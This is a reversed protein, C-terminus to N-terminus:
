LDEFERTERSLAREPGVDKERHHSLESTNVACGHRPSLGEVEQNDAPVGGRHNTNSAGGVLSALRTVLSRMQEAHVNMEESLGANEESSAANQQVVRDMDSVAKNVQEIGAAQQGSADAIEAVLVGVSAISEAVTSFEDNTTSVLRSGDNVKKATDEILAATSRAADAARLALNRVEDAVVAFGAGVEGARAAEVAANLALLNTQFAIEDITKVIKSTDESAGSIEEMSTTLGAMAVNANAIIRNADKMLGDAKVVNATNLKTMSDMEELSASTEEIASAQSSSGEAFQRSSSSLRGSASAIHDASETLESAAKRVSTVISRGTFLALLIATLIAALFLIIALITESNATNLLEATRKDIYSLEMAVAKGMDAMVKTITSLIDQGNVGFEGRNSLALIRAYAENLKKWPETNKLDNLFLRTSHSLTIVPSEINSEINSKIGALEIMQEASIPKDRSIISFMIPQLLGTNEKAYELIILSLFQKGIGKTTKSKSAEAQLSICTRIINTYSSRIEAIRGGHDVQERLTKLREMKELGQLKLNDPIGAERLAREFRPIMQDSNARQSELNAQDAGNSLSLVSLGREKQLENILLSASALLRSSFIMNQVVGRTKYIDSINMGAVIMLFGIPVLVLISLKTQIRM